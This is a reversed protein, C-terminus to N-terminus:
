KGKGVGERAKGKKKVGKKGQKGRRGHTGKLAGRGGQKQSVGDRRQKNV